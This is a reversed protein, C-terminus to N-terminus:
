RFSLTKLVFLGEFFAYNILDFVSAAADVHRYLKVLRLAEDLSQPPLEVQHFVDVRSSDSPTFAFFSFIFDFAVHEACNRVLEFDVEQEECQRGEVGLFDDVLHHAAFLTM